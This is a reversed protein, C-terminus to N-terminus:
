LITIFILLPQIPRHLTKAKYNADGEKANLEAGQGEVDQLGCFVRNVPGYSKKQTELSYYQDYNLKHYKDFNAYEKNLTRIYCIDDWNVECYGFALESIYKM